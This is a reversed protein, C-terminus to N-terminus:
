LVFSPWPQDYAMHGEKQHVSFSYAAVFGRISARKTDFADLLLEDLVRAL